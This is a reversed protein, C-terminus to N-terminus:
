EVVLWGVFANAYRSKVRGGMENECNRRADRMSYQLDGKKWLMYTGPESPATFSVRKDIKRGRSPVGDSLEGVITTDMILILQHICSDGGKNWINGCVSINLKEGCAARLVSASQGDQKIVIQHGWSALTEKSRLVDAGFKELAKWIAEDTSWSEDLSLEHKSYYQRLLEPHDYSLGLGAAWAPIPPMIVVNLEDDAVVGSAELTATDTLASTGRVLKIQTAQVDLEPSLLEKLRYVTDSPSVEVSACDGCLKRAQVTIPPKRIVPDQLASRSKPAPSKQETGTPNEVASPSQERKTSSGGM